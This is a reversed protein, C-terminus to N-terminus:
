EMTKLAPYVAAYGGRVNEAVGTERMVIANRVLMQQAIGASWEAPTAPAVMRQRVLSWRGQGVGDGGRRARQRQLFGPSGPPLYAPRHLASGKM